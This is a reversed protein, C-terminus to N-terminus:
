FGQRECIVLLNKTAWGCFLSRIFVWLFSPLVVTKAGKLIKVGLSLDYRSSNTPQDDLFTVRSEFVKKLVHTLTSNQRSILKPENKSPM